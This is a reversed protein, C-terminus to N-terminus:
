FVYGLGINIQEFGTRTENRTDQYDLKVVLQTLPKYEIGFTRIETENAPDATFGDPVSDQTNLKEWRLYPTLHSKGDVWTFVDYGLQLYAGVMTEGVSEDGTYLLADNLRAVDDLTARTALFRIQLGKVDIEVGPPLGFVIKKISSAPQGPEFEVQLLDPPGLDKIGVGERSELLLTDKVM